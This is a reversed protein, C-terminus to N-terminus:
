YWRVLTLNQENVIDSTTKATNSVLFYEKDEFTVRDNFNILHPYNYITMSLTEKTMRNLRKLEQTIAILKNENHVPFNPDYLAIGGVTRQETSTKYKPTMAQILQNSMYRAYPTVRNDGTDQGCAEGEIGDDSTSRVIHTQGQRSPSHITTTSDVVKMTGPVFAHLDEEYKTISEKTLYKEGNSLLNSM